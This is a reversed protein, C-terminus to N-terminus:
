PNNRISFNVRQQKQRTKGGGCVLGLLNLPFLTTSAACVLTVYIRGRRLERFFFVQPLILADEQLLEPYVAVIIASTVRNYVGCNLPPNVLKKALVLNILHRLTRGSIYLRLFVRHFIFCCARSLVPHNTRPPAGGRPPAM